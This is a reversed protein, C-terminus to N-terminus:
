MIMLLKVLIYMEISILMILMEMIDCVQCFDVNWYKDGNDVNGYDDGVDCSDVNWYKDGNDVNGYYWLGSLFRCKM